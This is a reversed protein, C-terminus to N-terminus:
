SFSPTAAGLAALHVLRTPQLVEFGKQPVKAYKWQTRTLVSANECWNSAARDKYSVDATEM